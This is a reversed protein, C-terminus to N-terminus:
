AAEPEAQSLLEDLDGVGCAQCHAMPVVSRSRTHDDRSEAVGVAGRLATLSCTEPIIGHHCLSENFRRPESGRAAQSGDICRDAGHGFTVM